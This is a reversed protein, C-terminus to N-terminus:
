YESKSHMFSLANCIGLLVRWFAEETFIRHNSEGSKMVDVTETKREVSECDDFLESGSLMDDSSGYVASDPVRYLTPAPPISNPVFIDLNVRLCLETQLWLHGDEVWSGFYQILNPCGKLAALACVEKTMAIGESESCIREKLKKLAYLTGDLRKRAAYVTSYSGGGMTAEEEFDSIYRPREKYPQIWIVTPKKAKRHIYQKPLFPNTVSPAVVIKKEGEIEAPGKPFLSPKMSTTPISFAELSSIEEFGDLSADPHRCSLQGLRNVVDQSFASQQSEGLISDQSTVLNFLSPPNNEPEGYMRTTRGVKGKKRMPSFSARISQDNEKPTLGFESHQSYQSSVISLNSCDRFMIYRSIFLYIDLNPQSYHIGVVKRSVM